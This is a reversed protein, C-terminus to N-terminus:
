KEASACTGSGKPKLDTAGDDRAKCPDPYEKRVGNKTGCTIVPTCLEATKLQAFRLPDPAALDRAEATLTAAILVAFATCPAAAPM